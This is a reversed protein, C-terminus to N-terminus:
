RWKGSRALRASATNSPFTVSSSDSAASRVVVSPSRNARIMSCVTAETANRSRTVEASSRMAATRVRTARSSAPLSSWARRSPVTRGSTVASSRSSTMAMSAPTSDLAEASARGLRPRATRPGAAGSSGGRVGTGNIM